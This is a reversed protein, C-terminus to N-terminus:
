KQVAILDTLNYIRLRRGGIVLHKNDPSFALSLSRGRYTNGNLDDIGISVLERGDELVWLRLDSRLIAAPILLPNILLAEMQGLFALALYQGDPSLAVSESTIDGFGKSLGFDAGSLSLEKESDLSWVRLSKGIDKNCMVAIKNRNGSLAYVPDLFTSCEGSLKYTRNVDINWIFVTGNKSDNTRGMFLVIYGDATRSTGNNEMMYKATTMLGMGFHWFPPPPINDLRSWTLSDWRQQIGDWCLVSFEREDNSFHAELLPSSKFGPKVAKNKAWLWGGKPESTISDDCQLETVSQDTQINWVEVRQINDKVAEPSNIDPLSTQEKNRWNNELWGPYTEIILFNNDPSFSLRRPWRSPKHSYIQALDSGRFIRIIDSGSDYAALLTGNSDYAIPSFTGFNVSEASEATFPREARPHFPDTSVPVPM